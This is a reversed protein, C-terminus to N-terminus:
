VGASEKPPIKVSFAKRPMVCLTNAPIDRNVFSYAGAVANEHLTVGPMVITGIGISAYRKFLVPKINSEYDNRAFGSFDDHALVVCNAAISVNDELTIFEPHVNDLTCYYGIFVHRGIKVGRLRHFFVRLKYHPSFWAPILWLVANLKRWWVVKNDCRKPSRNMFM